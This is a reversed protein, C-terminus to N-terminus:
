NTTVLIYKWVLAFLSLSGCPELTSVYWLDKKKIKEDYEVLENDRRRGFM